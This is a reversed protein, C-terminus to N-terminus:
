FRFSVGVAPGSLTLTQVPEGSKFDYDAYRWAAVIDGWGLSHGLGLVVQWTFRSNGAGADVYYPAFWRLGEGFRYRGTAGVIADWNTPSVESGGSRGPLTIGGLEGSVSYDLRQDLGLMRTGLVASMEYEPRRVAAYTGVLTLISTKVDLSLNATASGPLPVGGISLARTSTRTDGIDAYFWDVLAGWHGKRAEFTGMFAIKLGSILNSADVSISPGGAGTPFETTGDLGPFWGYLTARFQWEAPASQAQSALPSLALLGLGLALAGHSIRGIRTM